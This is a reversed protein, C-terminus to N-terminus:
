KLNLINSVLKYRITQLREFPHHIFLSNFGITQNIINLRSVHVNQSGGVLQLPM